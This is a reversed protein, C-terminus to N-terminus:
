SSTQGARKNSWEVLAAPLKTASSRSLAWTLVMLSRMGRMPSYWSDAATDLPLGLLNSAVVCGPLRGSVCGKEQLVQRAQTAM